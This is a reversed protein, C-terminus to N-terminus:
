LTGGGPGGIVPSNDTQTPRSFGRGALERWIAKSMAAPVKDAEADFAPRAWPHAPIHVTGFENMGGYFFPKAPGVAVSAQQDDNRGVAGADGVSQRATSVIIHAGLQGSERPANTSMQQRMPEAAHTLADRLMRKSVRTSLQELTKALDSLGEVRMTVM